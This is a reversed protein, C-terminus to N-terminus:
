IHYMPATVKSDPIRAIIDELTLDSLAAEITKTLSVWVPRVPCREIRDCFDRDEVCGVVAMSGELTRVVESVKIESPERTLAYGGGAGRVSRVLGARRLSALLSHLYKVSLGQHEALDQLHVPDAKFGQALEVM